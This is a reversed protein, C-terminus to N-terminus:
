RVFKDLCIANDCGFESDDCRNFNLLVTEKTNGVTWENVGMPMSEPAYLKFMPEEYISMLYWSKAGEDRKLYEGSDSRFVEPRTFYM